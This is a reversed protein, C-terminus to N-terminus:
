RLLKGAAPFSQETKTDIPMRDQLLESETLDCTQHRVRGRRPMQEFFRSVFGGGGHPLVARRVPTFSKLWLIYM